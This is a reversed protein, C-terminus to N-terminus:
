EDWVVVTLKGPRVDGDRHQVPIPREFSGAGPAPGDDLATADGTEDFQARSPEADPGAYTVNLRVHYGQPLDEAALESELSTNSAYVGDESVVHWVRENTVEALERDTGMDPVLGTLFGAYVSVALCIATVAVLAGLPETQGRKLRCHQYM